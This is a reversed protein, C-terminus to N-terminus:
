YLPQKIQRSSITAKQSVSRRPRRRGREASLRCFCEDANCGTILRTHTDAPFFHGRPFEIDFLRSPHQRTLSQAHADAVTHRNIQEIKTPPILDFAIMSIVNISPNIIVRKEREGRGGM